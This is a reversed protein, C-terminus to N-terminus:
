NKFMNSANTGGHSIKMTTKSLYVSYKGIGDNSHFEFNYSGDSKEILKGSESSSGYSGLDMSYTCTCDSNITASATGTVIGSKNTGSYTGEYDSCPEPLFAGFIILIIWVHWVKLVRQKGLFEKKLLEKNLFIKFKEIFNKM